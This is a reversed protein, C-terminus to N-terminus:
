GPRRRWWGPPDFRLRRLPTLKEGAGVGLKQTITTSASKASLIDTVLSASAQAASSGHTEAAAVIANLDAEARAGRRDAHQTATGISHSVSKLRTAV